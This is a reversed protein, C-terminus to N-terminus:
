VHVGRNARKGPAGIGRAPLARQGPIGAVGGCRFAAPLEIRHPERRTLSMLGEPAPVGPGPPRVPVGGGECHRTPARKERARAGRKFADVDVNRALEDREDQVVLEDLEPGRDRSTRPLSLDPRHFVQSFPSVNLDDNESTPKKTLPHSITGTIDRTGRVARVADPSSMIPQASSCEDQILSEGDKCGDDADLIAKQSAEIIIRDSVLDSCLDLLPELHRSPGPSTQFLASEENKEPSHSSGGDSQVDNVDESQGCLTYQITREAGLREVGSAEMPAHDLMKGNRSRHRGGSHLVRSRRESDVSSDGETLAFMTESAKKGPLIPSSHRRVATSISTDRESFIRDETRGLAGEQSGMSRSAFPQATAETSLWDKAQVNM